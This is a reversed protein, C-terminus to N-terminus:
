KVQGYYAHAGATYESIPALVVKRGRYSGTNANWMWSKGSWFGAYIGVHYIGKSNRGIFVLDGPQRSKWSIHRSKNYQGQATRPITKGAKKYSYSTLGSCDFRHPGAAGYQYPDGKRAKAVKLAAQKLTAAEAPSATGLMLSATVAGLAAILAPRSASVSNM